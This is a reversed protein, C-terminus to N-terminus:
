VPEREPLAQDLPLSLLFRVAYIQGWKTEVTCQIVDAVKSEIERDFDPDM